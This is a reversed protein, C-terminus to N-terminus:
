SSNFFMIRDKVCPSRVGAEEDVNSINTREINAETTETVEHKASKEESSENIDTRVRENVKPRTKAELEKSTSCDEGSDNERFDLQIEQVTLGQCLNDTEKSCGELEIGTDTDGPEGFCHSSDTTAMDQSLVSEGLDEEELTVEKRELSVESSERSLDSNLEDKVLGSEDMVGNDMQVGRNEIVNSYTVGECENDELAADKIGFNERTNEMKDESFETNKLDDKKPLRLNKKVHLLICSDLMSAEKRQTCVNTVGTTSGPVSSHIEATQMDKRSVRPDLGADIEEVITDPDDQVDFLVSYSLQALPTSQSRQRLLLSDTFSDTRSSRSRRNGPSEKIVRARGRFPQDADANVREFCKVNM